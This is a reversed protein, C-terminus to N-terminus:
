SLVLSPGAQTPRGSDPRTSRMVCRDQIPGAQGARGNRGSYTDTQSHCNPCLLELNEIRNDLRDGNMHHLALSLPRGAWDSIGCRECREEKLGLLLLRRKLQGRNVHTGVAFLEELPRYRPRPTIVGRGVAGYWTQTSFGFQRACERVGHGQDYYEQVVAWDYRRGFREDIAAGLRRAHYSVTSKAIDLRRAIEVGSLGQGLLEAVRERMVNDHAAKRTPRPAPAVAPRQARRLHYHVTSQAVNLRHAIALSTVGDRHLALIQEGLHSVFM